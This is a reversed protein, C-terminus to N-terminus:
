MSFVDMIGSFMLTISPGVSRCVMWGVLWGVMWGALRFIWCESWDLRTLVKIQPLETELWEEFKEVEETLVEFGLKAQKEDLVNRDIVM